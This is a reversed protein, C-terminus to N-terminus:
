LKRKVKDGYEGGRLSNRMNMLIQLYIREKKQLRNGRGRDKKLSSVPIKEGKRLPHNKEGLSKERV